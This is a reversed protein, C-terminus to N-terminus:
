CRTLSTTDALGGFFSAHRGYPSTHNTSTADECSVLSRSHRPSARHTTAAGTSCRVTDLHAVLLVGGARHGPIGPPTALLNVGELDSMWRM